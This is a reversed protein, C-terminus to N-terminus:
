LELANSDIVVTYVCPMLYLQSSMNQVELLLYSAFHAHNSSTLAKAFLEVFQFLLYEFMLPQFYPETTFLVSQEGSTGSDLDQCGYPPEFGDM